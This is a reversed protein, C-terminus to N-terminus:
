QMVDMGAGNCSWVQMRKTGCGDNGGSLQGNSSASVTDGPAVIDPKFRGDPTPGFSSYSAVDDYANYTPKLVSFSIM